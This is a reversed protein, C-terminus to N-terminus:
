AEWVIPARREPVYSSVSGSHLTAALHRGLDPHVESIREVAGRLARAVSQRAREAEANTSGALEVAAIERGPQRLLVSLYGLGKSDRLRARAGAYELVWEDGERRFTAREGAEAEELVTTVREAYLGMGLSRYTERAATLMDLAREQDGPGRRALLMRAHAVQGHALWPWAGMRQHQRHSREFHHEAKDFRGLLTALCGLHRDAAGNSAGALGNVVHCGAYPLLREYIAAAGDTDGLLWCTDALVARSLLGWIGYRGSVIDDFVADYHHRAEQDRGLQAMLLALYVRVAPRPFREATRRVRAELEEPRGQLLRIEFHQGSFMTEVSTFETREGIALAERAHKEAEDFRGALLALAARPYTTAWLLFPERLQEAVAAALDLEAAVAPIDGAEFLDIARWTRGQVLLRLDGFEGARAILEDAVALRQPLTEPGFFLANLHWARLASRLTAPDGLRRAMELAQGSLERARHVHRDPWRRHLTAALTLLLKARLGSDEPGLASLAEELVPVTDTATAEDPEGAFGLAATALHEASGIERAARLARRYTERAAGFDGSRATAEGLSVLLDYRRQEAAHPSRSLVDLAQRFLRAADEFASGALAQRGATECYRVAREGHAPTTSQSFHHALEAEHSEGESGVVEELAEGVRGHMVAREAAPVDWYLTDRLLAHSFSWRRLQREEVVGLSAARTLEDLLTEPAFNGARSLVDLDFERGVVSAYALLDQTRDPLPELRRRILSQVEEPLPLDGDGVGTATTLARASELVFFPNGDTSRHLRRALDGASAPGTLRELLLAVEGEDLGELTVLRGHASSAALLREMHPSARVEAERYAGVVLLHSEAVHSAVHSLLRLSAEDAAHLDDLAIVLGTGRAASVFFGAVADLLRLRADWSDTSAAAALGPIRNRLEPVLVAVDSAGPGLHEAAEDDEMEALLARVVQAWPWYPPAGGGEWCRGWYARVETRATSRILSELLTTKGIGPDGSLLVVGGKGRRADELADHLM